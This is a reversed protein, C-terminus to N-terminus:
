SLSPLLLHAELDTWGGDDDLSGGAVGMTGPNSSQWDNCNGAGLLTGDIGTGTWAFDVPAMAGNEDLLIEDVLSGSLLGARDSAILSDVSNGFQSARHYSSEMPAFLTYDRADISSTSLWARWTGGLAANDAYRQCIFDGAQNGQLQDFLPQPPPVLGNAAAILNGEFQDSTVFM